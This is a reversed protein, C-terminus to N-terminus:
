PLPEEQKAPNIFLYPKATIQGMKGTRSSVGKILQQRGNVALFKFESFISIVSDDKIVTKVQGGETREDVDTVDMTGVTVLSRSPSHHYYAQKGQDRLQRCYEVAFDKRGVYGAKPVDYFEAVVITYYADSKTLDWEPPGVDKGPLPMVIAAPFMQRGRINAARAKKMKSSAQDVTQYNGWCLDSRGEKHVIFLDRWGTANAVAQKLNKADTVHTETATSALLVTFNGGDDPSAGFLSPMSMNGCGVVPLVALMACVVGMAAFTRPHM